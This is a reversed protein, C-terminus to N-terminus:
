WCNYWSWYELCRTSNFVNQTISNQTGWLNVSPEFGNDTAFDKMILDVSGAKYQLIKYTPKFVGLGYYVLIISYTKGTQITISNGNGDVFTNSTLSLGGTSIIDTLETSNLNRVVENGITPFIGSSTIGLPNVEQISLLLADTACNGANTVKLKITPECGALLVVNNDTKSNISLTPAQGKTFLFQNTSQERDISSGSPAFTETGVYINLGDVLNINTKNYTINENNDKVSLTNNSLNYKLTYDISHRFTFSTAVQAIDNINFNDPQIYITFGSFANLTVSKTLRFELIENSSCAKIIQSNLTQFM